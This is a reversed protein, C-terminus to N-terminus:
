YAWSSDISTKPVTINVYSGIHNLQETQANTLYERQLRYILNGVKLLVFADTFSYLVEGRIAIGGTEKADSNGGNESPLEYVSKIAAVPMTVEIFEGPKAAPAIYNSDVRYVFNEIEISAATGEISPLLRGKMNIRGNKVEVKEKPDKASAELRQLGPTEVFKIAREPVVVSVHSGVQELERASNQSISKKSLYYFKDGSEIVCLEGDFSHWVKGQLVRNSNASQSFLWVVGFIFVPILLKKM